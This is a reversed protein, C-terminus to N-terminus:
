SDFAILVLFIRALAVVDGFYCCLCSLSRTTVVAFLGVSFLSLLLDM